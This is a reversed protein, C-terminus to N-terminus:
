IIDNGEKYDIDRVHKGKSVRSYDKIYRINRKRYVIILLVVAVLLVLVVVVGTIAVVDSLHMGCTLEEGSLSILTYGSYHSPSACRLHSQFKNKLKLHALWDSNCDCNWPNGRLHLETEESPHLLKQPIGKLNNQMLFIQAPAIRENTMMRFFAKGEIESLLYNYSCHLEELHEMDGFAFNKITKLQPMRDIYLNILMYLGRFSEAEITEIPNESLHLVKLHRLVRLSETPVSLLDNGALSLVRLQPTFVFLHDPIIKLLTHRLNLIELRDLHEFQKPELEQIQNQELNLEKLETLHVFLKPLVTVMENFSLDLRVLKSLGVFVDEPLNWLRNHGLDLEHLNTFGDFAISSIFDIANHSLDLNLVDRGNYFTGKKINRIKNGRFKAYHTEKPFSMLHPLQAIDRFNCDVSISDCDCRSEKESNSDSKASSIFKKNCIDFSPLPAIIPSAVNSSASESAQKTTIDNYSVTSPISSSGSVLMSSKSVLRTLESPSASIDITAKQICVVLTSTLLSLVLILQLTLLKFWLMIGTILKHKLFADAQTLTGTQNNDTKGTKM